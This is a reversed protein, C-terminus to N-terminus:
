IIKIVVTHRQVSWDQGHYNGPSYLLKIGSSPIFSLSADQPCFLFVGSSQSGIKSDHVVMPRSLRM